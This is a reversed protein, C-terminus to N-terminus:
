KEAECIMTFGDKMWEEDAHRELQRLYHFESKGFTPWRIKKFGAEETITELSAQDYIFQHGWLRFIDNIFQCGTAKAYDVNKRHNRLHRNVATSLAVNENNNQYLTVLKELDPTAQRLIGGTKLVRYAENLFNIGNEQPLHEFFQETFIIDLSHDPFPLKKSANLYIDGGILDANLWEEGSKIHHGGGVQLYKKNKARLWRRVRLYRLIHGATLWHYLQRITGRKVQNRIFILKKRLLPNKKLGEKTNQILSNIWFKMKGGKKNEIIRRTFESDYVEEPVLNSQIDFVPVTDKGEKTHTAEGGYGINKILNKCPFIAYKQKLIQRINWLYDWNPHNRSNMSIIKQKANEFETRSSSAERLQSLFLPDEASPLDLKFDQFARKWTAWGWTHGINAFFYNKAGKPYFEGFNNRGSVMLIRQDDRYRELMTECFSFFSPTPVCDDELIIGENVQDFFWSLGENVGFDSGLNKERFLKQISCEWDINNVIYERVAQVKEVEDLDDTNNPRPGDSVIYLYIPQVQRIVNLVQKVTELRKFTLILIPTQLGQKKISYSTLFTDNELISM